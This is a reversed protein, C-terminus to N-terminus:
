IEIVNMLFYNATSSSSDKSSISAKFAHLQKNFQL